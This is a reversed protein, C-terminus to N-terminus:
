RTIKVRSAIGGKAPTPAPAEKVEEEVEEVPAPAAKAKGKSAPPPTPAKPAPAAAKGKAAPAAASTAKGKGKAPPAVAGNKAAKGAVLRARIAAKEEDTKERVQKPRRVQIYEVPIELYKVGDEDMEAPEFGLAKLHKLKGSDNTAIVASADGRAIKIVTEVPM